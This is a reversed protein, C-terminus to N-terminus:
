RLNVAGRFSPQLQETTYCSAGGTGIPSYKTVKGDRIYFINNCAAFRQVCSSFSSYTAFDVTQGYIAGGRSCSGLNMGNVFNWIESGDSVRTKVVPVTLFVPHTELAVVPQGVWADLDEQRVSACGALIITVLLLAKLKSKVGGGKINSEM